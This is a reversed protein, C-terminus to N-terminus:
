DKYSIRSLFDEAFHINEVDKWDEYGDKDYYKGLIKDGIKLELTIDGIIINLNKNANSIVDIFHKFLQSKIYDSKSISFENNKVKSRFFDIRNLLVILIIIGSSYIKFYGDKDVFEKKIKKLGNEKDIFISELLTFAKSIYVLNKLYTIGKLDIGQKLVNFSQFLLNNNIFLELKDLLILKSDDYNTILSKIISDCVNVLEKIAPSSFNIYESIENVSPHYYNYLPVNFGTFSKKKCEAYYNRMKPVLNQQINNSKYINSIMALAITPPIERYKDFFKKSDSKLPMEKCLFVNFLKSYIDIKYQLYLMKEYDKCNKLESLSNILYAILKWENEYRFMNIIDITHDLSALELGFETIIIAKLKNFGLKKESMQKIKNLLFIIGNEYLHKSGSGFKEPNISGLHLIFLDVDKFQNIYQDLYDEHGDTDGLIGITKPESTGTKVELLLGLSNSRSGIEQHYVLKPKLYIEECQGNDKIYNALRYVGNEKLEVFEVNNTSFKEFFDFATKNLYIKCKYYPTKSRHILTLFEILGAMHDTHFHTVVVTGIDFIGIGYNRITEIFKFGPDIVIVGPYEINKKADTNKKCPIFVYCGGITDFFSPYWSNWKRAIIFRPKDSFIGSTSISSFLLEDLFKEKIKVTKRLELLDNYKDNLIRKIDAEVVM